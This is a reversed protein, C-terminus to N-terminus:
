ITWKAPRKELFATVGDIGEPSSRQDALRNATDMMLAENIAKGAVARILDKSAAIASPSNQKLIDRLKIRWEELDATSDVVEHVLGIRLATDANFREATLFYRRAQAVGIRQIVYPSITAPLLGLKVESLSFTASKVCVAMDCVSILGVGGGFAPGQVLAVTPVSVTSVANLMKSLALADQVNREKSAKAMEKMYNLDGGASFSKGSSTLFLVRIKEKVREVERICDHIQAVVRDNFANHVEPRNLQLYSAGDTGITLSVESSTATGLRRKHLFGHAKYLIPQVGTLRLM